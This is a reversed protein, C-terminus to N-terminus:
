KWKIKNDDKNEDNSNEATSEEDSDDMVKDKINCSLKYLKMSNESIARELRKINTVTLDDGVIQINEGM